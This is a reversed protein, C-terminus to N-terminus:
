GDTQGEQALLYVCEFSLRKAARVIAERDIKALGARLEDPTLLRSSLTQGLYWGAIGSQSDNVAEFSQM